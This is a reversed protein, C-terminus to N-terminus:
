RRVRVLSAGRNRLEIRGDLIEKCVKGIRTDPYRESFERVLDWRERYINPFSKNEKTVFKGLCISRLVCWATYSNPYKIAIDILNEDYSKNSGGALSYAIALKKMVVPAYISEPFRKLFSELGKIFDEKSMNKKDVLEGRRSLGKSGERRIDFNGLLYKFYFDYAEKEKGEPPIIKFHVANSTLIIRERRGNKVIYSDFRAVLTYDGVPLESFPYDFMSNLEGNTFCVITEGPSVRELISRLDTLFVLPLKVTDGESNSLIFTMVGEYATGLTFNEVEVEENGRNELYTTIIIEEGEFFVDKELEIRFELGYGQGMAINVAVFLVIFVFKLLKM